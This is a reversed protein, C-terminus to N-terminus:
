PVTTVVNGSSTAGQGYTAHTKVHKVAQLHVPAVEWQRKQFHCPFNLGEHWHYYKNHKETRSM